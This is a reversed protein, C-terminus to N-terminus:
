ETKDGTYWSTDPTGSYVSAATPDVEPEPPATTASTTPEETTSTTPEETTFATGETVEQTGEETALPTDNKACSIATSLILAPALLFPLIRFTLNKKMM